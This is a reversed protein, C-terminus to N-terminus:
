RKGAPERHPDTRGGAPEADQEAPVAGDQDHRHDPEGDVLEGDVLEGDVVVDDSRDQHPVGDHRDRDDDSDVLGQNFQARTDYTM